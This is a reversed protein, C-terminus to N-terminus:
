IIPGPSASSINPARKRTLRDSWSALQAEAESPRDDVILPQVITELETAIPDAVTSSKARARRPQSGQWVLDQAPTVFPPEAAGRTVALRALQAAHPLDPAKSVLALLPALEVKPSGKALYLEARAAHHLPGEPTADLRAAATAWDSARIAAFVNRYLTRQEDTLVPAPLARQVAPTAALAAPALPALCAALLAFRFTRM